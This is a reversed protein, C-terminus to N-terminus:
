GGQNPSRGVDKQAGARKPSLGWWLSSETEQHRMFGVKELVALSAVNSPETEAIIGRVRPQQFAWRAAERLAETMYGQKQHEPEIGYGIEVEGDQSAPGKFCFGGVIHNKVKLVIQWNTFWLWDPADQQVHELMHQVAERVEGEPGHGTVQLGLNAEMRGPDELSLQLNEEDLPILRLRATHLEFAASKSLSKM